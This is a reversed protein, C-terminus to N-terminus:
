RGDTDIKDKTEISEDKVKEGAENARHKLKGAECEAKTGTCFTEDVRHGAKRGQRKVDDKGAKAKETASQNDPPNAFALPAGAMAMVALMKITSKM